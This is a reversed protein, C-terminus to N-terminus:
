PHLGQSTLVERIRRAVIRYEKPQLMWVAVELVPEDDGSPRVEIRPEGEKLRKAVDKRKLPLTKIDWTIRAHPSENAIDPVFMESKTVGPVGHVAKLIYEVQQEWDKWQAKHDRQLYLELAVLLGVIEEKGVKAGRLITDAHPSGNLFAADILDKKGLLLGSCQPGQLGKGGSFCVLDFGLKNYESLRQVPPVDAAADIMSPVGAKRAIEVFEARKVQGKPDASNLFLTMATRDSLARELEDRGEAEVLKVGVARVAHDYGFRHTKQIIVESKMGQLDPLRKIKEPDKGAVCAATGLTLSAAAGATVLAAEVGLLESIRKGAASHLEPISVYSRSAEHMANAAEPPLLSASLATYTGAANILPRVGLRAYVSSNGGGGGSPSAKLFRPWGLQALLSLLGADRVFIRRGFKKDSLSM